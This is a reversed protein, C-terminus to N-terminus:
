PARRRAARTGFGLLSTLTEAVYDVDDEEMGVFLPLSLTRRYYTEAGPLAIDGYRERYYPHRHVPIYHVQTRIGREELARMLQGRSTGAADFDILVSYLHWAPICHASRTIPRLLPAFKGLNADYRAVLRRRTAGFHELKALQNKALACNIDSLRYNHGLATMEYYWPNVQANEIGADKDVFSAADRSVGHNRFMALRKAFDPQNTLAAGGEGAAINKVPHFSFVTIDSDACGGVATWDNDHRRYRTGLAHCSDEVIALGEYRACAAITELDACQGTLDVPFIATARKGARKLQDLAAEFQALQMLGSEPDCDAFHVEAGSFRAANATAAFTMTPVIVTHESGIGLALCALHLASTGNTCSVAHSAGCQAALATEFDRVTPGTTLWDGRLVAAVAAIDDEDIAHRSYPLPRVASM